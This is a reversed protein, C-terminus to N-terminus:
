KGANIQDILWQAMANAEKKKLGQNPMPPFNPDIKQPNFIYDALKKVDGNYKPVTENYAPGVMKVDFKHCASCKQNFIAQPDIGSSQMIKTKGEKEHDEAIKNVEKLNVQIANAFAFQDKLINFTVLVLVLMFVTTANQTDSNKAMAYIYNGLILSVVLVIVFYYFVSPTVSQSPLWAYTFILMLPFLISSVLALSGAIKKVVAAYDDTMDKLGGDWKFFYFMIAGGTIIGSLSLMAMFSFLSHWSFIVQLINNTHLWQSPNSALAMTGALLYAGTLLLYKAVTGSSSNTSEVEDEFDEIEQVSEDDPNMSEKNTFKRYKQLVGEIKFTNRYKIVFVFAVILILAGLAMISVTITKSLYLLQAYAFLASLVPIIGLAFEAGRTISLKEIVDRAFRKYLNNGEVNGKKAYRTSLFTAGLVMGLYPILLLLSIILMYKLVMVHNASAPIVLQDIFEM